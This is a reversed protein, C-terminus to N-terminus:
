PDTGFIRGLLGPWEAPASGVVPGDLEPPPEAHVAGDVGIRLVRDVFGDLDLDTQVLLDGGDATLETTLVTDPVGDGDTDAGGAVDPVAGPRRVPVYEEMFKM